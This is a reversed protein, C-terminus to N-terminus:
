WFRHNKLHDLLLHFDEEKKYKYPSSISFRKEAIKRLDIVNIRKLYSKDYNQPLPIEGDVIFKYYEARGFSDDDIIGMSKAIRKLDDISKNSILDKNELNNNKM